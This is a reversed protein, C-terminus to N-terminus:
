CACAPTGQHNLSACHCSLAYAGRGMVMCQMMDRWMHVQCGKIRLSCRACVCAAGIICMQTTAEIHTCRTRMYAKVCCLTDSANEM